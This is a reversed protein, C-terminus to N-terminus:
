TSTTSSACSACRIRTVGLYSFMGRQRAIFRSIGSRAAKALKAVLENRLGAIRTRM